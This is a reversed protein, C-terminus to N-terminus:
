ALNMRADFNLRKICKTCLTVKKDKGEENITYSQLNAKFVRPTVETRYMWRKGAVGRRHKQSRGLVARKECLYCERAM